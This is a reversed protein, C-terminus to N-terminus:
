KSQSSEKRKGKSATHPKPPTALARKLGANMRAITEADSYAEDHSPDNSMATDGESGVALM